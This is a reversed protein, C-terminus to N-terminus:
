NITHHHRYVENVCCLCFLSPCLQQLHYPHHWCWVPIFATPLQAPLVIMCWSCMWDQRSVCGTDCCTTWIARCGEQAPPPRLLRFNSAATTKVTYWHIMLLAPPPLPLDCRWVQPKSKVKSQPDLHATNQFFSNAPIKSQLPQATSIKHYSTCVNFANSNFNCKTHLERNM